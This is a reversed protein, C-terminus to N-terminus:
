RWAPCAWNGCTRAAPCTSWGEVIKIARWQVQELKDNSNKYQPDWFHACYELHWRILESCLIIVERLRSAIRSNMCGLISNAKQAGQACQLSLNLKSDLMVGLDEETSSSGLWDIGLRYRQLPSKRALCRDESFEM